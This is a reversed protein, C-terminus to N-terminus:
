INVDAVTNTELVELNYINKCFRDILEADITPFTLPDAVTQQIADIIERMITRDASARKLYVQCWLFLTLPALLVHCAFSQLVEQLSLFQDTSATLDPVTGSLPPVGGTRGLFTQLAAVLVKFPTTQPTVVLPPYDEVVGPFPRNRLAQFVERLAEGFNMEEKPHQSNILDPYRSMSVVTQKFEDREAVSPLQQGLIHYLHHVFLALNFVLWPNPYMGHSDKWKSLAKILIVIYPVHCHDSESLADLNQSDCYALLEDFPQSIRLDPLDSMPKSEIIEHVGSTQVRVCGILGYARVAILPISM